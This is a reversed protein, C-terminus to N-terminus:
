VHISIILPTAAKEHIGGHMGSLQCMMSQIHEMKLGSNIYTLYLAKKFSM